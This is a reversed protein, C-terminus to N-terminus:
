SDYGTEMKCQKHWDKKPKVKFEALLNELYVLPLGIVTTIDGEFQEVLSGFDPVEDQVGYAGGRDLM